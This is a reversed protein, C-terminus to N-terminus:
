SEVLLFTVHRCAARPLFWPALVDEFYDAIHHLLIEAPLESLSSKRRRILRVTPYM